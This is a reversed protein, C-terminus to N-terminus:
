RPDLVPIAVRLFTEDVDADASASDGRTLRDLERVAFFATGVRV